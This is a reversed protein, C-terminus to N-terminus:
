LPFSFLHYDLNMIMWIKRVAPTLVAVVIWLVRLLCRNPARMFATRTDPARLDHLLMSLLLYIFPFSSDGASTSSGPHAGAIAPTQAARFASSATAHTIRDAGSPTMKSPPPPAPRVSKARHSYRRNQFWNWIQVFGSRGYVYPPFYSNFRIRGDM